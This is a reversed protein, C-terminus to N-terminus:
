PHMALQNIRVAIAALPLVHHAGALTLAAQPMEPSAAAEARQVIACGGRADDENSGSLVVGILRAQWADAASEFLVAASPRVHCVRADASLSFTQDQEVLLHYGPPAVWVQAAEARAGQIAPALPLPCGLALADCLDEVPGQSHLLVIVALPLQPSLAPLLLRLPM